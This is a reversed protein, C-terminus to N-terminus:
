FDFHSCLQEVIGDYDGGMGALYANNPILTDLWDIKDHEIYGKSDLPFYPYTRYSDLLHRDKTELTFGLKQLEEDSGKNFADRMDVTKSTTLIKVRNIIISESGTIPYRSSVVFKDRVVEVAAEYILDTLTLPRKFVTNALFQGEPLEKAVQIPLSRVLKTKDKIFSDVLKKINETSIEEIAVNSLGKSHKDTKDFYIGTTFEYNYFMDEIEKIIFPYFLACVEYLPVGMYNYPVQQEKYHNADFRPASIVSIVAHDVSKGMVASRVIGTKGKIKDSLFNHIDVLCQQVSSQTNYATTFTISEANVLNLLRIYYANLEDVTIRDKTNLNIDRYFCPIVLWNSIFIEDFKFKSILDEKKARVESRGDDWKIKSWNNIFFDIGTEFGDKYENSVLISGEKTLTAYKTGNLINPLNRFMQHIMNYFFPHFFKRKLNIYGFNVKREESSMTGFITYSFIGNPEPSGDAAIINPSTVEQLNNDKILVDPNYTDLIM